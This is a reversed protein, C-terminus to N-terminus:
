QSYGQISIKSSLIARSGIDPQSKRQCKDDSSEVVISGSSNEISSIAESVTSISIAGPTSSSERNNTSDFFVLEDLEQLGMLGGNSLDSM